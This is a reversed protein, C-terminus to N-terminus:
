EDPVEVVVTKDAKQWALGVETVDPYKARDHIALLLKRPAKLEDQNIEAEALAKEFAAWDELCGYLWEEEVRDCLQGPRHTRGLRQEAGDNNSPPTLRLNKNYRQLNKGTGCSNESAIIVPATAKSVHRGRADRANEGYYPWGTERALREGVEQFCVWIISGGRDREALHERERGWDIAYDIKARGLWEGRKQVIKEYPIKEAMWRDYDGRPLTGALVARAVEGETDYPGGPAGKEDEILDRFFRGWDGRADKFPQEPRPVHEYYMSCGMCRATGWQEAPGELPYGDPAEGFCRLREWHEEMEPETPIITHKIHLPVDNYAHEWIVIGPHKYLEALFREYELPDKKWRRQLAQFEKGRPQGDENVPIPGGNAKSLEPISWVLSHAFDKFETGPSGTLSYVPIEWNGRRWRDFKKSRGSKTVDKLKHAEDLLVATPNLKWLLDGDLSLAEYSEIRYCTPLQWHRRYMEFDNRMQEVNSAETFIVPREGGELAMALAIILTNHTVIHHRTVYLSDWADVSICVCEHRGADEVEWM